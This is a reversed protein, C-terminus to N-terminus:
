LFSLRLMCHQMHDIIYRICFMSQMSMVMHKKRREMLTETTRLQKMVIAMHRQNRMHQKVM